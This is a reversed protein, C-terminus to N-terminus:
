SFLLSLSAYDRALPAICSAEGGLNSLALVRTSTSPRALPTWGGCVAIAGDCYLSCDMLFHSKYFMISMEPHHMMKKKTKKREIKM